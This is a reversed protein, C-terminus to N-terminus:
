HLLDNRPFKQIVTGKSGEEYGHFVRFCDISYDQWLPKRKEWPVIILEQWNITTNSYMVEGINSTV